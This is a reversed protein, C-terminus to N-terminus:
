RAYEVEVLAGGGAVRAESLTFGAPPPADLLAALRHAQDIAQEDESPQRLQVRVRAADRTQFLAVQLGPQWAAQAGRLGMDFDASELGAYAVAHTGALHRTAAIIASRDRARLLEAALRANEATIWFWAAASAAGILVALGAAAGAWRVKPQGLWEDSLPYPRLRRGARRALRLLDDADLVAPERDAPIDMQRAYEYVRAALASEDAPPDLILLPESLEGTHGMSWLLLGGTTGTLHLGFVCPPTLSQERIAADLLLALPAVRLGRAGFWEDGRQVAYVLRGSGRLLAAPVGLVTRVHREISSAGAPLLLRRDIVSARLVLADAPIEEFVISRCGRADIAWFALTQRVQGAVILPLRM